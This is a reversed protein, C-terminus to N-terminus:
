IKIGIMEAWENEELQIDHISRAQPIREQDELMGEIVGQLLEEASEYADEKDVGSTACELDPFVASIEVEEPEKCFIALYEYERKGMIRDKM